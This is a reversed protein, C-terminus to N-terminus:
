KRGGIVNAVGHVPMNNHRENGVREIEKYLAELKDQKVYNRAIQALSIDHRLRYLEKANAAAVEYSKAFPNNLVARFAKSGIEIM